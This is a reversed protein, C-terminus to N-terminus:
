SSSGPPSIRILKSAIAESNLELSQRRSSEYLGPQYDGSSITQIENDAEQKEQELRSIITQREDDPMDIIIKTDLGRFSLPRDEAAPRHYQSSQSSAQEELAASNELNKILERYDSKLDNFLAIYNRPDDSALLEDNASQFAEIKEKLEAKLNEIHQFKKELACREFILDTMNYVHGKALIKDLKPM